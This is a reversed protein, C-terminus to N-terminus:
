EIQMSGSRKRKDASVEADQQDMQVEDPRADVNRTDSSPGVQSM